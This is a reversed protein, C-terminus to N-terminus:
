HYINMSRESLCGGAVALPCKAANHSHGAIAISWRGILPVAQNLASLLSCCCCGPCEGRWCDSSCDSWIWNRDLDRSLTSSSGKKVKREVLKVTVVQGAETLLTSDSAFTLKAMPAATAKASICHSLCSLFHCFCFDAALHVAFLIPAFQFCISFVFLSFLTHLLSYQTTFWSFSSYYSFYINVCLNSLLLLLLLLLLLFPCTFTWCCDFLNGGCASWTINM